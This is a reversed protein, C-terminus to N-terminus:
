YPIASLAQHGKRTLFILFKDFEIFGWESVGDYSLSAGPDLLADTVYRSSWMDHKLVSWILAM